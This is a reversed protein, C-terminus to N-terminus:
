IHVQFNLTCILAMKTSWLSYELSNRYKWNWPGGNKLKLTLLGNLHFSFILEKTERDFGQHVRIFMLVIYNAILDSKWSWFDSNSCRIERIPLPCCESYNMEMLEFGKYNIFQRVSLQSLLDSPIWFILLKGGVHLIRSGALSSSEWYVTNMTEM